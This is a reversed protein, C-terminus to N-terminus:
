ISHPSQSSGTIPFIEGFGNWREQIFYTVCMKLNARTAPLSKCHWGLPVAMSRVLM